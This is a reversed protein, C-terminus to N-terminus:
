SLAQYTPREVFCYKRHCLILSTVDTESPLDIPPQRQGVLYSSEFCVRSHLAAADAYMPTDLGKAGSTRYWGYSNEPLALYEALLKGSDIAALLSAAKQRQEPTGNKQLEYLNELRQFDIM